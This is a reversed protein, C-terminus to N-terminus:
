AQLLHDPAFHRSYPFYRLCSSQQKRVAGLDSIVWLDLKDRAQNLNDPVPVSQHNLDATEYDGLLESMFPQSEVWRIPQQGTLVRIAIPTQFNTPRRETHAALEATLQIAFRQSTDSFDAQIFALLRLRQGGSWYFYGYIPCIKHLADCLSLNAIRNLIGFGEPFGRQSSGPIDLQSQATSPSM